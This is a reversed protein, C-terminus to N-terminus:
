VKINNLEFRFRQNSKHLLSELLMAHKNSTVLHNLTLMDLIWHHPHWGTELSLVRHMWFEHLLQLFSQIYKMDWTRWCKWIRRCKSLIQGDQCYRTALADVKKFYHQIQLLGPSALGVTSKYKIFISSRLVSIFTLKSTWSFIKFESSYFYKAFFWAMHTKFHALIFFECFSPLNMAYALPHFRNEWEFFQISSLNLNIQM